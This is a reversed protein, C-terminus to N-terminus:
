STSLASSVGGGVWLSLDNGALGGLPLGVQRLAQILQHLIHPAVQLWLVPVLHAVHSSMACM